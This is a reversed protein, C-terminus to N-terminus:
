KHKYKVRVQTRSHYRFVSKRFHRLSEKFVDLQAVSSWFERLNQYIHVVKKFPVVLCNAAEDMELNHNCTFVQYLLMRVEGISHQPVSGEDILFALLLKFLLKVHEVRELGNQSRAIEFEATM